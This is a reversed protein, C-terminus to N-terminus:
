YFRAETKCSMARNGTQLIPTKYKTPYWNISDTQKRKPWLTGIVSALWTPGTNHILLLSRTSCKLVPILPLLHVNHCCSYHATYIMLGMTLPVLHKVHSHATVMLPTAHM